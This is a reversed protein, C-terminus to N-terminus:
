SRASPCYDFLPLHTDLAAHPEANLQL